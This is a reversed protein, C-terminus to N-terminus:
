EKPQELDSVIRPVLSLPLPVPIHGKSFQNKLGTPHAGDSHGTVLELKDGAGGWAHVMPTGGNIGSNTGHWMGILIDATQNVIQVDGQNGHIM